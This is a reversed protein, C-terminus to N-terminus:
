GPVDFPGYGSEGQPTSQTTLYNGTGGRGGSANGTAGAEPTNACNFCVVGRNNSGKLNIKGNIEIRGSARIVCPNPGRIELIAGPLVFLDKVDVQGNIVAQSVGHGQTDIGTILQFSTNLITSGGALPQITWIFGGIGPGGTGGFNFSAKL